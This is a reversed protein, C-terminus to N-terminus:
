SGTPKPRSLGPGGHVDHEHKRSKGTHIRQKVTGIKPQVGGRRIHHTKHENAFTRM